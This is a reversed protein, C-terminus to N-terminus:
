KYGPNQELNPNDEIEIIPIPWLYDRSPDFLRTGITQRRSNLVPGTLVKDAIKWRKVDYYYLAEGAFEIRREHRIQQRIQEKSLGASLAPIGARDRVLNVANYVSADPGSFENQAEAYMLLVDPYRILIFNIDSQNDEVLQKVVDDEYVTFKKFTYGTQPFTSATVVQGNFKGGVYGITQYFRPDRNKYPNLPDYLPSSTIPLGDSMYYDDVLNQVPAATNFRQLIIDFNHRFEPSKFQVDFVVENNNENDPLFLNRYNAFLSYTNLAMVQKATTAAEQWNENYLLVRTKLSLAAGRTARGINGATYTLPLVTGASAEALDKLVQTIVQTKTNRPLLSHAAVNPENLILPVGGYNNVLTFYFLARLFKAEGKIREKLAADMPIPEIRDLLTNTRGIGAYCSSWLNSIIGATSPNHNSETIARVGLSNTYNYSNPSVSELLILPVGGGYLGPQRLTQYCANIGLQVHEQTKWFTDETFRDNPQLELLEDSCGTMIIGILIVYLIKKM